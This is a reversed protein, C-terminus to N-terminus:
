SMFLQPTEGPSGFRSFYRSKINAVPMIVFVDTSNFQRDVVAGEGIYCGLRLYGKLLPPLSRAAQRADYAGPPLRDMAVYRSDLARVKWPDPAAFNHALFSLQRDHAAPDAGELSACGFMVDIRNIRVYNWIGQWLLALVPSARYSPLVCARGLEFFRLDPHRTLLPALDFERQSYFGGRAAAAEQRLVRYTGVVSESSSRDLVLVHDCFADFEDRDCRAARAAADPRAHLEGYFVRYRLKQAALVDEAAHSLVVSLSGRSALVNRAAHGQLQKLKRSRM